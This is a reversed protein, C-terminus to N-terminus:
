PEQAAGCARIAALLPRDMGHKGVFALAGAAAARARTEADDHLSLMVVRCEPITQCLIRTAAIGDMGPRPLEIDMVVVDPRLETALAIGTEADCAEGVLEIDPELGLLMRLGSRVRPQDDILLLRLPASGPAHPTRDQNMEDGSMAGDGAHM